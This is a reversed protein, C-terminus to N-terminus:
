VAIGPHAKGDAVDLFSLLVNGLLRMQTVETVRHRVESELREM